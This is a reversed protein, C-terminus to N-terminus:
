ADIVEKNEIFLTVQITGANKIGMLEPVIEQIAEVINQEAYRQRKRPLDVLKGAGDCRICLQGDTLHFAFDLYEKVPAKLAERIATSQKSNKM